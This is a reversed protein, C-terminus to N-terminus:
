APPETALRLRSEMWGLYDFFHFTRNSSDLKLAEQVSAITEQLRSILKGVDDNRLLFRLLNLLLREFEFYTGHRNLFDAARKIYSEALEHNGLEFHLIVNIIKAQALIDVRYGKKQEELIRNIWQAATQFDRGRFYLRAIGLYILFPSGNVKAQDPRITKYSKGFSRVHSRWKESEPDHIALTIQGLYFLEYCGKHNKKRSAFYRLLVQARNFNGSEVAMMAVLFINMHFRDEDETVLHPNKHYLKRIKEVTAACRDLEGLLYHAVYLLRYYYIRARDSHAYKYHSLLKKRKISRAVGVEFEGMPTYSIKTQSYIFNYLNQYELLNTHLKTVHAREDYIRKAESAVRKSEPGKALLTNEYELLVLMKTFAEMSEALNKAKALKKTARPYFGKEILIEVETIKRDLKAADTGRYFSLSQIIRGELEIKLDAFRSVHVHAKLSDEDYSEANRLARFLEVYPADKENAGKSVFTYFNGVERKTLSRVLRWVFDSSKM